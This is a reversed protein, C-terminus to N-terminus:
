CFFNYRLMTIALLRSRGHDCRSDDCKHCSNPAGFKGHSKDFRVNNVLALRFILKLFNHCSGRPHSVLSARASAFHFSQGILISSIYSLLFSSFTFYVCRGPLASMRTTKQCSPADRDCPFATCWSCRSVVHGNEAEAVFAREYLCICDGRKPMAADRRGSYVFLRFVWEQINCTPWSRYDASVFFFRPNFKESLKFRSHPRASPIFVNGELQFWLRLFRESLNSLIRVFKFIEIVNESVSAVSKPPIRKCARRSCLIIWGKPPDCEECSLWVQRKIPWSPCHESTPVEALWLKHSLFSCRFM